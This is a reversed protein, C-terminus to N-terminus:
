AFEPQVGETPPSSRYRSLLEGFLGAINWADDAARHHVGELPLHLRRLAAVMGVEHPLAEFLAVLVKINVHSPGFPYRVQHSRCQREFQLRDYDGYSAWVWESSAYEQQLLACAEAFSIGGNVQEQTLGTLQTCFASVTSREPRVLLSRKGQRLGSAVELLCVGIEIIESEQGPPPPGEWCTSEVDVILLHEVVQSKWPTKAM